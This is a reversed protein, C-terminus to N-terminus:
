AFTIHMPDHDLEMPPIPLKHTDSGVFDAHRVQFCDFLYITRLAKELFLIPSVLRLERCTSAGSEALTSPVTYPLTATLKIKEGLPILCNM